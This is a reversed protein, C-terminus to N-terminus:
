DCHTGNEVLRSIVGAEYAGYAGGGSLLLINCGHTFHNTFLFFFLISLIWYSKTSSLM